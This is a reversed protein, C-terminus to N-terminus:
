VKVGEIESEIQRLLDDVSGQVEEIVIAGTADTNVDGVDATKHVTAWKRCERLLRRSQRVLEQQKLANHITLRLDASSTPKTFIRYVQAENIARIAAELSTQGTLMMRVTNPYKRCVIRLFESGPMGPMQEDSVVVDVPRTALIELAEQGSSATVIEFPERRLAQELATTLAPEDDVLLVTNKKTKM